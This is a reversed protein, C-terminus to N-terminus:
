SNYRGVEVVKLSRKVAKMTKKTEAYKASAAPRKAYRPLCIPTVKAIASAAKAGAM